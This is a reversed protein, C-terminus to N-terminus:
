KHNYYKLTSTVFTATGIPPKTIRCLQLRYYNPVRSTDCSPSLPTLFTPSIRLLSCSALIPADPWSSFYKEGLVWFLTLVVRNPIYINLSYVAGTLMPWTCHKQFSFLNIAAALTLVVLIGDEEFIVLNNGPYTNALYFKM